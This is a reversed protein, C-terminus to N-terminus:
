GRKKLNMTKRKAIKAERDPDLWQKSWVNQRRSDGPNYDVTCHCRDHRQYVENPADYYDYSGELNRCWDCAHGVVRRIIQPRLGAKAHFDANAKISDDVISQSFNVIPENLIWAIDPFSQESAIRNILGEIRDQNLVAKQGKIRLGAAHNLETQVDVAFSSILDYNKQMTPNLIRDAINFYMKGDPLVNVTVHTTLVDALIEGIEIAFENVDLYTAQKNKLLQLVKKLKASSFTRQDFEKEITELLAPVIDQEM